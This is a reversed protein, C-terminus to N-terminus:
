SGADTKGRAQARAVEAEVKQAITSFGDTEDPTLHYKVEIAERTDILEQLRIKDKESFYGNQRKKLLRSIEADMQDLTKIDAAIGQSVSTYGSKDATEKLNQLETRTSDTLHWRTHFRQSLQRQPCPPAHSQPRLFECM